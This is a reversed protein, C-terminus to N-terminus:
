PTWELSTIVARKQTSACWVCYLMRATLRESESDDVPEYRALGSSATTSSRQRLPTVTTTDAPFRPGPSIEYAGAFSGKASVTPASAGFSGAAVASSWTAVHDDAPVVESPNALGSSSAGPRWM